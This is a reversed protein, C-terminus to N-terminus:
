FISTQYTKQVFKIIKNNSANLYCIYCMIAFHYVTSVSPQNLAVPMKYNFNIICFQIFDFWVFFSDVSMQAFCECLLIFRCWNLHCNKAIKLGRGGGEGEKGGHSQIYHIAAQKVCNAIRIRVLKIAILWNHTEKAICHLWKCKIDCWMPMSFIIFQSLFRRFRTFVTFLSPIFSGCPFSYWPAAAAPPMPPFIGNTPCIWRYM